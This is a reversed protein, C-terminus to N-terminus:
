TPPAPAPAADDGGAAPPSDAAKSTCNPACFLDTRGGGRYVSVRGADPTSVLINNSYITRGVRDLVVVDTAGFSKGSIFLTHSDVVTVDAVKPNGMVVSSAEGVVSLRVSHDLPVNLNEALAPSVDAAIAVVASFALSAIARM